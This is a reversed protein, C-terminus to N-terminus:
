LFPSGKISGPTIALWASVGYGIMGAVKLDGYHLLLELEEKM